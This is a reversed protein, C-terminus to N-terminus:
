IMINLSGSIIFLQEGDPVFFYETEGDNLVIESSPQSALRFSTDGIAKLRVINGELNESVLGASFTSGFGIRLVQVARSNSDITIIKSMTYLNNINIDIYYSFSNVFFLLIEILYKEM